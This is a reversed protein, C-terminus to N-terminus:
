KNYLYDVIDSLKFIIESSNYIWTERLDSVRHNSQPRSCLIIKYRASVLRIDFKRRM